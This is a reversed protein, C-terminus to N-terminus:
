ETEASPKEAPTVDKLERRKKSLNRLELVHQSRVTKEIKVTSKEAYEEPNTVSALWMYGKMAVQPNIDEIKEAIHDVKAAFNDAKAKKAASYREELEPRKDIQQRIKHWPVELVRAVDDVRAGASILAFMEDWWTESNLCEDSHIRRLTKRRKITNVGDGVTQLEVGGSGNPEGARTPLAGKQTEERSM